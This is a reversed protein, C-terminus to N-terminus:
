KKNRNASNIKIVAPLPCLPVSGATWSGTGGIRLALTALCPRHQKTPVKLATYTYLELPFVIRFRADILFTEMSLPLVIRIM